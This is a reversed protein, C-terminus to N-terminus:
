HSTRHVIQPHLLITKTKTKTPRTNGYEAKKHM